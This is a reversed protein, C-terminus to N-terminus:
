ILGEVESVDTMVKNKKNQSLNGENKSPNQPTANKGQNSAIKNEEYIIQMFLTVFNWSSKPSNQLKFISVCFFNEKRRLM